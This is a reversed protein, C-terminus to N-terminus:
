RDGGPEKFESVSLETVSAPFQRAAKSEEHGYVFRQSGVPVCSDPRQNIVLSPLFDCLEAGVRHRREAHVAQNQCSGVHCCSIRGGVGSHRVKTETSLVM